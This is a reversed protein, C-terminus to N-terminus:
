HPLNMEVDASIKLSSLLSASYHPAGTVWAQVKARYQPEMSGSKYYVQAAQVSMQSLYERLQEITYKDAASSASGQGSEFLTKEITSLLILDAEARNADTTRALQWFWATPLAVVLGAGLWGGGAIASIAPGAISGAVIQAVGGAATSVGAHLKMQARIKSLDSQRDQQIKSYAADLGLSMESNPASARVLSALWKYRAEQFAAMCGYAIVADMDANQVAQSTELITAVVDFQTPLEKSILSRGVSSKAAKLFTLAASVTKASTIASKLQDKVLADAQGRTQLLLERFVEAYEARVGYLIIPNGWAGLPGPQLTHVGSQIMDPLWVRGSWASNGAPSKQAWKGPPVYQGSSQAVAFTYGAFLLCMIAVLMKRM